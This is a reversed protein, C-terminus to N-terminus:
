LCAGRAGVGGGRTIRSRGGVGRSDAKSLSGSMMSFRSLAGSGGRLIMMSCTGAGGGLGRSMIRSFHSGLCLLGRYAPGCCSVM